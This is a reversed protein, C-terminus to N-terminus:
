SCLKMRQRRKLGRRKELSKRKVKKIAQEVSLPPGVRLLNLREATAKGLISRGSCKVVMFKSLCSQKTVSCEIKCEFTGITQIPSEQGYGFVCNEVVNSSCEIHNAKLMKWTSEDVINCTAGSDILVDSINTGGIHLNIGDLHENSAVNFAYYSKYVSEDPSDEETVTKVTEKEKKTSPETSSNDSQDDDSTNSQCCAAFHGRKKCKNCELNRAPCQIDRSFHGPKNCRYCRYCKREGSNKDRNEERTRRPVRGRIACATDASAAGSMTRLHLTMAEHERAVKLFDDLHKTDGLELFKRLLEQDTCKIVAQNRIWNDKEAFTCTTAKQKLRYVYKEFTEDEQQAIQGFEYIEFLGNRKPLFHADFLVIAEDYTTNDDGLNFYLEQLEMGGCHLLTARKRAAATIAKAELYFVFARRWKIWRDGVNNGFTQFYPLPKLQEDNM